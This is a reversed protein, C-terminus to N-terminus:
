VYDAPRANELGDRLGRRVRSLSVVEEEMKAKEATLHEVFGQMTNLVVRKNRRTVGDPAVLLGRMSRKGGYKLDLCSDIFPYKVAIVNSPIEQPEVQSPIPSVGEYNGCVGVGYTRPANNAM